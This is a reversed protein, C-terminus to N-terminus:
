RCGTSLACSVCHATNDIHTWLVYKGTTSNYIVKPREVIRGPGLDGSGATDTWMTGPVVTATAAEAAVPFVLLAPVVAVAALLRLLRSHMTVM